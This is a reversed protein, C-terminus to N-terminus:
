TNCPVSSGITGADALARSILHNPTGDYVRGLEDRWRALLGAPDRRNDDDAIDDVFRCFAYLAFLAERREPPLLRFAYYFNSSARRTIEQCHAYADRLHPDHKM